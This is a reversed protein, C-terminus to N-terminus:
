GEIGTSTPRTQGKQAGFHDFDAIEPYWKTKPLQYQRGIKTSCFPAKRANRGGLVENKAKKRELIAIKLAGM